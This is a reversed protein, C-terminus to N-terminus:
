PLRNSFQSEMIGMLSGASKLAGTKKGQLPENRIHKMLREYLGDKTKVFPLILPTIKVTTHIRGGMLTEDGLEYFTENGLIHCSIHATPTM